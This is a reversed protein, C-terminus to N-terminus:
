PVVTTIALGAFATSAVGYGGTVTGIFYFFVVPMVFMWLLTEWQRLMFRLDHSAIFLAHRLMKM